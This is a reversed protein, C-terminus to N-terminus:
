ATGSWPFQRQYPEQYPQRRHLSDETKAHHALGDLTPLAPLQQVPGPEEGLEHKGPRHVPRLDAQQLIHQPQDALVPPLQAPDHPVHQVLGAAGSQVTIRLVSFCTTFMFILDQYLIDSSYQKLKFLM